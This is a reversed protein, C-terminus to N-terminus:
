DRKLLVWIPLCPLGETLPVLIQSQRQRQRLIERDKVCVCVCVCVCKEEMTECMYFDVQRTHRM